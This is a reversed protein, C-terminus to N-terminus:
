IDNTGPIDSAAIVAVVGPVSLGAAADIRLVRAHAHPSTVLKCHLLGPPEPMDDIFRAAGTVHLKASDHHRASGAGGLIPAETMEPHDRMVGDRRAAHPQRGDRAM